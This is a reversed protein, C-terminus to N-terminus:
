IRGHWEFQFFRAFSPHTKIHWYRKEFRPRNDIAGPASLGPQNADDGDLGAVAAHPREVSDGVPVSAAQGPRRRANSVLSQHFPGFFPM